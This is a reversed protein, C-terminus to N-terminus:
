LNSVFARRLQRKDLYDTITKALYFNYSIKWNSPISKVVRVIYGKEKKIQSLALLSIEARHLIYRSCLRGFNSVVLNRTRGVEM